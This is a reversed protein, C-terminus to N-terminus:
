RSRLLYKVQPMYYMFRKAVSERDQRQKVDADRIAALENLRNGHQTRGNGGADIRM